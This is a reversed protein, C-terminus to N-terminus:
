ARRYVWVSAPPLNVPVWTVVKGTVGMRERGVPSYPGYTFQIFPAGPTLLRFVERVIADQINRPMSLLPLGSVIADAREIGFPRLTDVLATADGMVVRLQPYLLRLHNHLAPDRELVVLRQPSLETRLLGATINGTGGGLEIVPGTGHLPVQRAMANALHRSSPAIAGIGMPNKMWRRLFLRYDRSIM